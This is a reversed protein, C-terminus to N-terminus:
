SLDDPHAKLRADRMYDAAHQVTELADYRACTPYPHLVTPAVAPPDGAFIVVRAACGPCSFERQEGLDTPTMREGGNSM